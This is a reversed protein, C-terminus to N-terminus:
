WKRSWLIFIPSKLVSADTMRRDTVAVSGAAGSSVALMV